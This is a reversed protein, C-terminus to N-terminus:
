DLRPRYISAAVAKQALSALTAPMEPIAPALSELLALAEESAGSQLLEGALRTQLIYRDMPDRAVSVRERLVPILRPRNSEFVARVPRDVDRAEAREVLAELTEATQSGGRRLDRIQQAWTPVDFLGWGALAMVGTGVALWVGILTLFPRKVVMDCTYGPLFFPATSSHENRSRAEISLRNM